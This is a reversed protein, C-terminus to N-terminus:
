ARRSCGGPWCCTGASTTRATASSTRPRCSPRTSCTADAEAVARGHRLRLQQGRDVRKRGAAAYRRTPRSRPARQADADDAEAVADPPLLNEPPKGDGFRWRATSRASSAPTRTSSAATARSSGSTPRCAATAPASRAQRGGLRLLSLDVGRNKPDGRQIRAVGASHSNDQPASAASSRWTTCRGPRDAAAARQRPHRAGLDPDGPVARRVAHEAEPGLERAPQHRRRALHVAGAEASRAARRGAGAPSGASARSGPRPRGRGGGLWQRRSLRHEWPRASTRGPRAM